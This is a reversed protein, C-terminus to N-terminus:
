LSYVATETPPIKKLLHNLAAIYDHSNNDAQAFASRLECFQDDELPGGTGAEKLMKKLRNHSTRVARRLARRDRASGEWWRQILNHNFTEEPAPTNNRNVNDHEQDALNVESTSM